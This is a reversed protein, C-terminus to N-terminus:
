QEKTIRYCIALFVSNQELIWNKIVFRYQILYDLIEWTQPMSWHNELIFLHYKKGFCFTQVTSRLGRYVGPGGSKVEDMVLLECRSFSHIRDVEM